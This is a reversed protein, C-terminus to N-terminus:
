TPWLKRNLCNAQFQCKFQGFATRFANMFLEQNFLNRSIRTCSLNFECAHNFWYRFFFTSTTTCSDHLNWLFRLSLVSLLRSFHNIEILIPSIKNRQSLVLHLTVVVSSEYFYLIDIGLSPNRGMTTKFLYNAHKQLINGLSFTYMKILEIIM